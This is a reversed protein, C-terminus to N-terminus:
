CTVEDKVFVSLPQDPLFSHSSDTSSLYRDLLRRAILHDAFREYSFHIGELWENDGIRFRDEALVGESIMHRFLSREYEYEALQCCLAEFASQQSGNWCRLNQWDIRM